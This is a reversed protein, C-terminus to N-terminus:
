FFGKAHFGLAAEELGVAIPSTPPFSLPESKHGDSNNNFTEQKLNQTMLQQGSYSNSPTLPKEPTYEKTSFTYELKNRYFKTEEAGAIPLMEPLVIKGIRKLNDYVQQQKYVLQQKYPLMQWQCGGCVGFHQCFPQVRDQSYSHFQIPFGEGWDKKNKKLRIDVVDGPVVNEIFIVKGDHRALSKGEAAYDEVLVKELVIKKNRRVGYFYLTLFHKFM